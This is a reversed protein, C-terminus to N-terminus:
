EMCTTNPTVECCNSEHCTQSPLGGGGGGGGCAICYSYATPEIINSQGHVTGRRDVLKAEPEVVAPGGM